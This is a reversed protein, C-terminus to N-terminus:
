IAIQRLSVATASPKTLAAAMRRSQERPFETPDTTLVQVCVHDAGAQRHEEVRRVIAEEDGWAMIADFLRDSVSALDDRHHGLPVGDVSVQCTWAPM